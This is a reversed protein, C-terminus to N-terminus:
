KVVRLRINLLQNDDTVGANTLNIPQSQDVVNTVESVVDKVHFNILALQNFYLFFLFPYILMTCLTGLGTKHKEKGFQTMAIQCGFQDLSKLSLQNDRSRKESISQDTDSLKPM